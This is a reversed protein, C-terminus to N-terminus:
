VIEVKGGKSEVLTKASESIENVKLNVAKELEGFGLIKVPIKETKILGSAKLASADIVEAEVKNLDKLNVIQIVKPNRSKFGRKPLRMQIPM